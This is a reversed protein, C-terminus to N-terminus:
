VGYYTGFFAGIAAATILRKDDVYSVVIYAGLVIVLVAYVSATFKDGLGVNSIYRTWIYDSVAVAAAVSIWRFLFSTKIRVVLRLLNEKRKM